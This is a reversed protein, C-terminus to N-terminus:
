SARSDSDLQTTSDQEVWAIVLNRWEPLSFGKQSVNLVSMMIYYIYLLSWRGNWRRRGGCHHKLSSFNWFRVFINNVNSGRTDDIAEKSSAASRWLTIIAYYPHV